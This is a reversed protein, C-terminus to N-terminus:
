MTFIAARTHHDTGFFEYGKGMVKTGERFSFTTAPGNSPHRRHEIHLYFPIIHKIRLYKSFLTNKPPLLSIQVSLLTNTTWRLHTKTTKVITGHAKSHNVAGKKESNNLLYLDNAKPM